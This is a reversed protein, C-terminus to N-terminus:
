KKIVKYTYHQGSIRMSLVYFGNEFGTLDLSRTTASVTSSWSGMTIVKGAIDHVTYIIPESGDSNIEINLFSSTPNPYIRTNSNDNLVRLSTPILSGKFIKGNLGVVWANSSDPASISAIFLNPISDPIESWSNGQDTTHFVLAYTTSEIQVSTGIMGRNSTPFSIGYIRQTGSPNLDLSETWASGPHSGTTKYIKGVEGGV